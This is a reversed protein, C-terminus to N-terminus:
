HATYYNYAVNQRRSYVKIQIDESLILPNSTYDLQIRKRKGSPIPNGYSQKNNQESDAYIDVTIPVPGYNNIFITLTTGDTNNYVREITFRETAVNMLEITEFIYSEATITCYGMSFYWAGGGVTLVAAALIVQSIVPSLAKRKGLM